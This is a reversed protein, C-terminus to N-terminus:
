RADRPKGRSALRQDRPISEEIYGECRHYFMKRACRKESKLNKLLATVEIVSTQWITIFSSHPKIVDDCGTVYVKVIACTVDM